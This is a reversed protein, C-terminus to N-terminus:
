LDITDPFATVTKPETPKNDHLGHKWHLLGQFFECVPSHAQDRGPARAVQELRGILIDMQQHSSLDFFDQM